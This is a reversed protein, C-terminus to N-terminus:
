TYGAEARSMRGVRGQPPSDTLHDDLAPPGIRHGTAPHGPLRRGHLRHHPAAREEGLHRHPHRGPGPRRDLAPERRRPLDVPDGQRGGRHIRRQHRRLPRVRRQRDRLLRGASAHLEVEPQRRHEAHVHHAPHGRHHQPRPRRPGPRRLRAHPHRRPHRPRTGVATLTLTQEAATRAGGVGAGAAVQQGATGTTAPDYERDAPTYGTASASDAPVMNSERGGVGPQSWAGDYWKRWSGPAMRDAIPARAVHAHFTKWGSGKDVIRSGYFVYFYGSATDAFLRPDGDGYHYTQQPFATTDGRATGYPSTIVHDKVTWTRGQDTSVAYDIGDFHSSDGFPQPTFENHVLGYWDGTDPDVWM